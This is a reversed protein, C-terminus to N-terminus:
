GIISTAAGAGTMRPLDPSSLVSSEPPLNTAAAELVRTARAPTAPITTKPSVLRMASEIGLAEQEKVCGEEACQVLGFHSYLEEPTAKRTSNADIIIIDEPDILSNDDDVFGSKERKIKNWGPRNVANQTVASPPPHPYNTEAYASAAARALGDYYPDETMLAFGPDNILVSPWCPNAILGYPDLPNNPLGAFRLDLVNYATVVTSTWSEWPRCGAAQGHDVMARNTIREPPNDDCIGRFLAGAGSNQAGPLFRIWVAGSNGRGQWIIAPPFEDRQCNVGPSQM